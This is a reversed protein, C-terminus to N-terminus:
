KTQLYKQHKNTIKHNNIHSKTIISGCECTIKEKNNVENYIKRKEKLKEQNNKRYEKNKENLKGQNVKHYDKRYENLKEQNNKRYEKKYETIKEKNVKHYDKRYEKHCFDKVCNPVFCNLKNICKLKNIWLQEYAHLHRTDKVNDRYVLYEKILIIKFNEWKLPDKNIYDYLSISKGNNCNNKHVQFRNRLTNFTSGVYQIEPNSLCVIRYVRGTTYSM